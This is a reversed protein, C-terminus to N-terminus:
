CIFLNMIKQDVTNTKNWFHEREKETETQLNKDWGKRYQIRGWLCPADSLPSLRQSSWSFMQKVSRVLVVGCFCSVDFSCMGNLETTKKRETLSYQLLNM